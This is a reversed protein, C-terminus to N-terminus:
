YPVYLDFKGAIAKIEDEIRSKEDASTALVRQGILHFVKQAAWQQALEPTGRLCEKLPKYFVLEYPEGDGGRGSVRVNVLKTDASFRGYFSLTEERYLHPLVKPFSESSLGDAVQYDVDALILQSHTSIYDVLMSKFDKLDAVHLSYGRNHYGLFELLDRNAKKGASFAYVSVNGPNMEKISRVFDDDDYINVTSNGDTMLFVNMPRGTAVEGNSKRIFPSISGFVDTMGGRVLGMVYKRALEMNERSCPQFDPFLTRPETTFSVVNFRDKPNLYQLAEVTSEKFQELKEGSISTSHDIVFLLDKPVDWLEESKPNAAVDARFYGGGTREEYITVSVVVYPDLSRFGEGGLGTKPRLGLGGLGDGLDFGPTGAIPSFGNKGAQLGADWDGGPPLDGVRLAGSGPLGGMRMQVGYTDGVAGQLAGPSLLSPVHAVPIYVRNQKKAIREVQALQQPSLAAADVEIIKPRPATAPRAKEPAPLPPALVPRGLGELRVKPEAAIELKANRFVEKMKKSLDDANRLDDAAKRDDTIKVQPQEPRLDRIDTLQVNIKQPPEEARFVPINDFTIKDAVGWLLLHFLLSLVASIVVYGTKKM